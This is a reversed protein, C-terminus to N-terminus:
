DPSDDEEGASCQMRRQRRPGQVIMRKRRQASWSWAETLKLLALELQNSARCDPFM